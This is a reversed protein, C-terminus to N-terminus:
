RIMAGTIPTVVDLVLDGRTYSDAFVGSTTANDTAEVFPDVLIQTAEISPSFAFQYDYISTTGPNVVTGNAGTVPTVTVLSALNNGDVDQFRFGLQNVTIAASRTNRVDVRVRYNQQGPTIVRSFGTGPEFTRIEINPTLQLIFRDIDLYASGSDSNGGDMLFRLRVSSANNAPSPLTASDYTWAHNTGSITTIDVWNGGDTISYQLRGRFATTPFSNRFWFSLVKSGPTGAPNYYPVTELAYDGRPLPVSDHATMYSPGSLSRAPNSIFRWALNPRFSTFPGAFDEFGPFNLLTTPALMLRSAGQSPLAFITAPGGTTQSVATVDGAGLRASIDALAPASGNLSGVVLLYSDANKPIVQSLGSFTVRGSGNFTGGTGVVTDAAEVRGSLNTDLVLRVSGGTVFAVDAAQDLNASFTNLIVNDASSTRVRLTQFVYDAENNLGFHGVSESGALAFSFSANAVTVTPGTFPVNGQAATRASIAGTAQLSTLTYSFTEGISAGGNLDAYLLLPENAGKQITLNITAYALTGNDSAITLNTLNTDGSNFVGDNNRDRALNIRANVIDAVDNASGGASFNLANLTVNEVNTPTLTGRWLTVATATPLTDFADPLSANANVTVRTPLIPTPGAAIPFTGLIDSDIDEPTATVTVDTKAPIFVGVTGGEAASGNLNGIVLFRATTNRTITNGAVPTPILFEINGNNQTFTGSAVTIDAADVVGQTVGSDRLLRVSGPIFATSEDISGNAQIRLREVAVDAGTTPRLSFGLLIQDTGDPQIGDGGDPSDTTRTATTQSVDFTYVGSQIATPVRFVTNLASTVGRGGLLSNSPLELRVTGGLAADPADFSAAILYTNKQDRGILEDISSMNFVLRNSDADYIGNTVFVDEADIRGNIIVERYLKGPIDAFVADADVSATTVNVSVGDLNIAELGYLEEMSLQLFPVNQSETLVERNGLSSAGKRVEVIGSSIQVLPGSILDDSTNTRIAGIQRASFLGVGSFIGEVPVTTGPGLDLRANYTSNLVLGSRFDYAILWTQEDGELLNITPNLPISLVQDDSTFTAQGLLVDVADVAANENVDRYLKAREVGTAENGSGSSRFTFGTVQMDEIELAEFEISLMPVNDTDPLIFVPDAGDPQPLESTVDVDITARGITFEAGDIRGLDPDVPQDTGFYPTSLQNSLSGRSVVAPTGEMRYLFTEFDAAEGNLDLGLIFRNEIAPSLTLPPTFRVVAFGDDASIQGVGLQIDPGSGEVNVTGVPSNDRYLRVAGNDVSTLDNMTGEVDFRLEELYTIESRDAKLSFAIGAVNVGDSIVAANDQNSAAEVFVRGAGFRIPPAIFPFVDETNPNNDYEMAYRTVPIASNAGEAVVDSATFTLNIFQGNFTGAAASASPTMAITLFQQNSEIISNINAFTATGNDANFQATAVPLSNLILTMGNAALANVDHATGNAHVTLSRLRVQELSTLTRTRMRTVVHATAGGPLAVYPLDDDANSLDFRLGETQFLMRRSVVPLDFEYQTDLGSHGVLSCTGSFQLDNFSLLHFEIWDGEPATPLIDTFVTMRDANAQSYWFAGTDLFSVTENAFDVTAELGPVIQGSNLYGIKVGNPPLIQSLPLEPRSKIVKLVLRELELAEIADTRMNMAWAPNNSSGPGVPVASLTVQSPDLGGAVMALSLISQPPYPAIEESLWIVPDGSDAGVAIVEDIQAFVKRTGDVNVPVPSTLDHFFGFYADATDAYGVTAPGQQLDDVTATGNTSTGQFTRAEIFSDVFIDNSTIGLANSTSRFVGVDTVIQTLDLNQSQGNVIVSLIRIDESPGPDLQFKAFEAIDNNVCTLLETATDYANVKYPTAVPQIITKIASSFPGPVIQANLQSLEGRLRLGTNPGSIPDIHFQVTSDWLTQPGNLTLYLELTITDTDARLRIPDGNNIFSLTPNDGLAPVGVVTGLLFEGGDEYDGDHNVDNGFQASQIWSNDPASGTLRIHAEQLFLDENPGTEVNFNWAAVHTGARPLATREFRERGSTDDSLTAPNARMTRVGGNLTTNVPDVGTTAGNGFVSLATPIRVSFTQDDPAGDQIDFTLLLNEVSGTIPGVQFGSITFTGDDPIQSINALFIDFVTSGFAGDRDVFGKRTGIDHWLTINRLHQNDNLSGEVKFTMGTLAVNEFSESKLTFALAPYDSSGPTAFTDGLDQSARAATLLTGRYQRIPGALNEGLVDLNAVGSDLGNAIVGGEPITFKIDTFYQPKVFNCNAVVYTYLVANRPVELPPSLVINATGNNGSISTAGLVPVSGNPLADIALVNQLGIGGSSIVLGDDATGTVNVRISAIAVREDGTNDIQLRIASNYQNNPLFAVATNNLDPLANLILKGQGVAKSLGVAPLGTITAANLTSQGVANVDANAQVNTKFTQGTTASGNLNYVLVVYGTSTAGVVLPNATFDFNVTGNDASYTASTGLQREPTAGTIDAEGNGNIDEYLRVGSAVLAATESGTGSATFRLQRVLVSETLSQNQIAVQIMPYNAASRGIFEAANNKPGETVRIPPNQAMAVAAFLTLVLTALAV